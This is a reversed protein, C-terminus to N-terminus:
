RIAGTSVRIEGLYARQVDPNAKIEDPTGTAIVKGYVLVSIRDALAFVADMDHEVLLMSFSLRMDKLLAIIRPSEAQSLGAMPEDLLVLKPRAAIAMALELLRQDGYNLEEAVVSSRGTLGVMDLAAAAPSRLAEITRANKWFRFSHGRQGQVALAVNDEASFKSLVSTIQFTRVLGLEVRRETSRSTIDDGQFVIRGANPPLEGCIQAILTSKGAGNPGILAHIEGTRVDLSVDDTATLGGFRKTLGSVKLLATDTMITVM